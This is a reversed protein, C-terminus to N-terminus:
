KEIMENIIMEVKGLFKLKSRDDPLKNFLSLLEIESDSLDSKPKEYQTPGVLSNTFKDNTSITKNCNPVFMNGNLTAQNQHNLLYDITVDFIISIKKLTGSDPFRVNSEYKSIASYSINLKNALDNRSYGKKIRLQKLTEGFNM